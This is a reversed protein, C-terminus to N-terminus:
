YGSTQFVRATEKSREDSVVQLQSGNEQLIHVESKEVSLVSGFGTDIEFPFHVGVRSSERGPTESWLSVANECHIPPQQLLCSSFRM